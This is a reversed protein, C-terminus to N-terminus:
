IAELWEPDVAQEIKNQLTQAIGLFAEFKIVEQRHEAVQQARVVVDNLNVVTPYPGPNTPVVFATGGTSFSRYETDDLLMGMHGHLGGGNGTPISAAIALLESTLKTLDEDDPQCGIETIHSDKLSEEIDIKRGMNSEKSQNGKSFFRNAISVLPL